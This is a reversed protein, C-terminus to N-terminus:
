KAEPLVYFVGMTKLIVNCINPFIITVFRQNKFLQIRNFRIFSFINHSYTTYDITILWPFSVTFLSKTHLSLFAFSCKGWCKQLFPARHLICRLIFLIPYLLTLTEWAYLPLISHEFNKCCLVLTQGNNIMLTWKLGSCHHFFFISLVSGTIYKSFFINICFWCFQLAMLLSFMIISSAAFNFEELM